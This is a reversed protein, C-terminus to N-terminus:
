IDKQKRLFQYSICLQNTFDGKTVINDHLLLTHREARNFPRYRVRNFVQFRNIEFGIELLGDVPAKRYQIVSWTGNPATLSTFSVGTSNVYKIGIGAGGFLKFNPYTIFQKRLLGSLTFELFGISYYKNEVTSKKFLLETYLHNSGKSRKSALTAGLGFTIDTKMSKEQFVKTDKEMLEQAVSYLDVGAILSLSITNKDAQKKVYCTSTCGVCDNFQTFIDVLSNITYNLSNIRLKKTCSSLLTDLQKLYIKNHIVYTGQVFKHNILERTVSKNQYFFHTKGERDSLYSLQHDAKLLVMLAVTTDKKISLQPTKLLLDLRFPTVDLDVTQVQYHEKDVIGFARLENVKYGRESGNPSSFNIFNPSGSWNRDDIKGKLTDSSGKLIIYGDVFNKQCFATNLVLFFIVFLKSKM